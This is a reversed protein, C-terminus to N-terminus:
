QLEAFESLFVGVCRLMHYVRYRRRLGVAYRVIAHAKQYHRYSATSRGRAQGVGSSHTEGGVVALKFPNKIGCVNSIFILSPM